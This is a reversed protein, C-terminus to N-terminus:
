ASPHLDDPLTHATRRATIRLGRPYTHNIHLITIEVPVSQPAPTGVCSLFASVIIATVAVVAAPKKLITLM